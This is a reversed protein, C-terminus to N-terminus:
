IYIDCVCEIIENDKCLISHYVLVSSITFTYSVEAYGAYKTPDVAKLFPDATRVRVVPGQIYHQRLQDLCWLYKDKVVIKPAKSKTSSVAAGGLSPEASSQAASTTSAQLASSTSTSQSAAASSTPTTTPTVVAPTAQAKKKIVIRSASEVAAAEAANTTSSSTATASQAPKSTSKVNAEMSAVFKKRLAKADDDM